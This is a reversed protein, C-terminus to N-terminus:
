DYDLPNCFAWYKPDVAGSLSEMIDVCHIEHGQPLLREIFHRGVFGCGGTILIKSM